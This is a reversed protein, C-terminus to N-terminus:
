GVWEVAVEIGRYPLLRPALAALRAELREGRDLLQALALNSIRPIFGLKHGQWHVAVARPDYPNDPERVLRLADGEALRHQLREAAYYALGNIPTHLVLLRRAPAATAQTGGAALLAPTLLLHKLFTRKDM